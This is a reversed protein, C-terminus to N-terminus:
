RTGPAYKDLNKGGFIIMQNQYVTSCHGWRSMPVYGYIAVTKWSREEIDFMHLDNLATNSLNQFMDQNRGGFIFLYKGLHEATHQCRPPPPTGEAKVRKIEFYVRPEIGEYYDGRKSDFLESNEKTCPRVHFLDNTPKREENMGGFVYFGMKDSTISDGQLKSKFSQTLIAM